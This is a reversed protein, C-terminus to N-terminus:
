LQDHWFRVPGELLQAAPVLFAPNWLVDHFGPTIRWAGLAHFLVAEDSGSENAHWEYFLAHGPHAPDMLGTLEERLADIQRDDLMRIGGVYGNEHFFRVQDDSLRYRDWEARSRPTQFYDGVPEHRLSLDEAAPATATMSTSM